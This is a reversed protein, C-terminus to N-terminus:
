YILLHLLIVILEVMELPLDDFATPTVDSPDADDAMDNSGHFQPTTELWKGIPGLGCSAVLISAREFAQPRPMSM